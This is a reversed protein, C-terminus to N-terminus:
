GTFEFGLNLHIHCCVACLRLKHSRPQKTACPTALAQLEEPIQWDVRQEDQETVRQM